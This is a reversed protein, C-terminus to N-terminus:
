KEYCGFGLDIGPDKRYKKNDIGLAVVILIFYAVVAGISILALKRLGDSTWAVNSASCRSLGYCSGRMYAGADEQQVAADSGSGAWIVTPGAASAVVTTTTVYGHPPKYDFDDPEKQASAPSALMLGVGIVALLLIMCKKTNRLM